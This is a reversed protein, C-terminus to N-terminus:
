VPVLWLEAPPVALSRERTGPAARASSEPSSNPEFRLPQITEPANGGRLTGRDRNWPEADRAASDTAFGSV